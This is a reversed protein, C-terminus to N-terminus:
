PPLRKSAGLFLASGDHVLFKEDPGATTKPEHGAIAAHVHLPRIKWGMFEVWVGRPESKVIIARSNKM